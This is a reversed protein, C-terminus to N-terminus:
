QVAPLKEAVEIGLLKWNPNGDKFSLFFEKDTDTLLSRIKAILQARAEPIDARKNIAPQRCVFAHEISKL